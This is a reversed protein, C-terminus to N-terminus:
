TGHRCARVAARVAVAHPAHSASCLCAYRIRAHETVTCHMLSLTDTQSVAPTQSGSLSLCLSLPVSFDISLSVSLSSLCLSLSVGLTLSITLFGTLSSLLSGAAQSACRRAISASGAAPSVLSCVAPRYQLHTHKKLHASPRGVHRALARRGTPSPAASAPTPMLVALPLARRAYPSWYQCQCTRSACSSQSLSM